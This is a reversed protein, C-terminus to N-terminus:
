AFRLAGQRAETLPAVIELRGVVRSAVEQSFAAYGATTVPSSHGMLEQVVRIDQCLAYTRTGFWHRLQHMTADVGIGTLYQNGHRSLLAATYPGGSPRLFLHGRRPLGHGRIAAHAEPHLPVVRERNGKGIVRVMAGDEIIDARQLGAIEACRLGSYAALSLWARETPPALSIAVALDGDPIPRPLSRRMKPRPIRATPDSDTAGADIAWRYFCGLNSLWGYRTKAVIQRGDLFQQVDEASQAWLGGREDCWRQWARIQGCRHEISRPMLGRREQDLRWGAVASQDEM